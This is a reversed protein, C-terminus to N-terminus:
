CGGVSALRPDVGTTVGLRRGFVHQLAGSKAGSDLISAAREVLVERDLTRRREITPRVCPRVTGDVSVEALGVGYTRFWEGAKQAPSSAGADIVLWAADAALRHRSAQMLGKRWDRLKAEITVVRTALSRYSHTPCWLTGDRSVHGGDTLRPLIVNRLHREGIAVRESLASLDVGGRIPRRETLALMTKVDASDAIFALDRREQVAALDLRLLVIDPIGVTSPVEFLHESQRSFLSSHAAIGALM